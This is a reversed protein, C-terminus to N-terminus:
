RMTSSPKLSQSASSFTRLLTSGGGRQVFAEAERRDAEHLADLLGKRANWVYAPLCAGFHIRALRKSGQFVVLASQKVGFGSLEESVTYTPRLRNPVFGMASLDIHAPIPVVQVSVRFVSQWLLVDVCSEGWKGVVASAPM